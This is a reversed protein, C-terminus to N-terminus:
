SWNISINVFNYPPVPGVYKFQFREGMEADMLRVAEDLDPEVLCDVLFAANIVMRDGIPKNLRTSHVFSRLRDLIIQEDAVRKSEMAQAIWEGLKVREFHTRNAPLGSLKDRLDRIAANEALIESFIANEHWQAKLGLEIRGRMQGLLNALEDRRSRLLKSVIVEVDPSVTGFRVPLMPFRGMVEELVVTHAMMNRRTNDYEIMPSDSVVAGLRGEVITHVTGGHGGVGKSQFTVPGTTDIVAYLYKGQLKLPETM